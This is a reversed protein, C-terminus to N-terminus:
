VITSIWSNLSSEEELLLLLPLELRSEDIEEDGDEEDEEEFLSLMFCFSSEVLLLSM